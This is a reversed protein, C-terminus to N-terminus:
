IDPRYIFLLFYVIDQLLYTYLILILVVRLSHGFVASDTSTHICSIAPCCNKIDTMVIFDVDRDLDECQMHQVPLKEDYKM